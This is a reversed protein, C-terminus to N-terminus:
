TQSGFVQVWFTGFRSEVKAVEVEVEIDKTLKAYWSTGHPSYGWRDFARSSELPRTHTALFSLEAVTDLFLRDAQVSGFSGLVVFASLM